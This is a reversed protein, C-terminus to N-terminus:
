YLAASSAPFYARQCVIQQSDISDTTPLALFSAPQSWSLLQASQVPSVGTAVLSMSSERASVSPQLRPYYFLVRGGLEDPIVFLASCEQIFAGGERDLFGTIPQAQAGSPPAGGLLPQALTLTASPSGSSTSAIRGVNFTVLRIYNPDFHISAPSTV